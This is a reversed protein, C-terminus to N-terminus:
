GRSDSFYEKVFKATKKFYNKGVLVVNNYRAVKVNMNVIGVVSNSDMEEVKEFVPRACSTM